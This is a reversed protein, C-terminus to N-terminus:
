KLNKEIKKIYPKYEEENLIKSLYKVGKKALLIPNLENEFIDFLEKINNNNM